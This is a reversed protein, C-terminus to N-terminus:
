RANFIPALAVLGLGVAFATLMIGIMSRVRSNAGAFEKWYLLGWLISVMTAGQGIVYSVAPGVRAQGQASAAVFNCITGIGWLMGGVIGLAHETTKGKFYDFIQVPPGEVPLNMFFLNFFFTSLFVGGAFILGLAYPGLGTDNTIERYAGLQVIPFFLGMLVGSALSILVGKLGVEKKTTRTTGARIAEELKQAAFARYAMATVIVAATILAVGAFLLVPNGSPDIAYNLVVGIILALGIAIPFAVALGAISIAAVLLMNALNFVVGGAFAYFAPRKGSKAIDDLTAFGDFGMTGFTFALIIAVLLVGAAYDFYFLEFRWKKTFKQTNAWSGWCIMSLLMLCLTALYTSPLLMNQNSQSLIVGFWTSATGLATGV